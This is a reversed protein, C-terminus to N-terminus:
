AQVDVFFNPRSKAPQPPKGHHCGMHGVALGAKTFNQHLIDIQSAILTKTTNQEAWFTTNIMDNVLTLKVHVPGFKGLEFALMVCWTNEQQNKEKRNQQEEIRIHFVDIGNDHRLPIETFQVRNTDDETHMSALQHLQIRALAGSVQRLLDQLMTQSNPQQTISSPIRPQAQPQFHRLPPLPTQKNDPQEGAKKAAAASPTHKARNGTERSLLALLRLLYAKLDDAPFPSQNSISHALQNELFVGSQLLSQKLGSATAADTHRPLHKVIRRALLRLQEGATPNTRDLATVTQGLPQALTILSAIIETLGTQQPLLQRVAQLTKNEASPTELAPSHPTKGSNVIEITITHKTDQIRGAPPLSNAATNSPTAPAQTLKVNLNQGTALPIKTKVTFVNGNISLLYHGPQNQAVVTATLVQGFPLNKSVGHASKAADATLIIPTQRVNPYDM